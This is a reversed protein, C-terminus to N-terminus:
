ESIRRVTARKTLVQDGRAFLPNVEIQQLDPNEILAESIRLLIDAVGDRDVAPYHKYGDLLESAQIDSLMARAEPKQIPALRYSVDSLVDSYVGGLGFTIVIGFTDDRAARALLEIGDGEASRVHIPAKNSRRRLSLYATELNDISDIDRYILEPDDQGGEKYVQVVVPLGITRAFNVAEKQSETVIEDIVPVGVEELFSKSDLESLEEIENESTERSRQIGTQIRDFVDEDPLGKRKQEGVLDRYKCLFKM